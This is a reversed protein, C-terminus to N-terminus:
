TSAEMRKKQPGVTQTPPLPLVVGIPKWLHLCFPHCNVYQARPPHYQIVTEDDSWWLSKIWSMEEWTPCRDALSVSVHEFAPPPYGVKDWDTGDSAIVRLEVGGRRPVIFAGNRM